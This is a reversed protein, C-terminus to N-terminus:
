TLEGGSVRKHHSGIDIHKGNRGMLPLYEGTGTDSRSDHIAPVGPRDSYIAGRQSLLEHAIHEKTVVIHIKGM